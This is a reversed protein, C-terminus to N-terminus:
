LRPFHLCQFMFYQKVRNLIPSRWFAGRFKNKGTAEIFTPVLGWFKRVKLKLRKTVSTYFKLAVGLTLEFNTFM